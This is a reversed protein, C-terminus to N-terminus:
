RKKNLVNKRLNEEREHVKDQDYPSAQALRIKRVVVVVRKEMSGWWGGGM